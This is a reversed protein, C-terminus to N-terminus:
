PLVHGFEWTLLDASIALATEYGYNGPTNNFFLYTMRFQGPLADEPTKEFVVATDTLEQGSFNGAFPPVVFGGFSGGTYYSWNRFKLSLQAVPLSAITPHSAATHLVLGALM